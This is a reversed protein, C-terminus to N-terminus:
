SSILFRKESLMQLIAKITSATDLRSLPTLALVVLCGEPKTALALGWTHFPANVPWDAVTKRLWPRPAEESFARSTM